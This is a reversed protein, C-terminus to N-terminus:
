IAPPNIIQGGGFSAQLVLHYPNNQPNFQPINAGNTMRNLAAFESAVPINRERRTNLGINVENVV